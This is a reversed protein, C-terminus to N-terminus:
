LRSHAGEAQSVTFEVAKPSDVGQGREHIKAQLLYGELEWIKKIAAERAIRVGIEHVYNEASVCASVGTVEFGNELVLLVVTTKSGLKLEHQQVIKREIDEITVTPGM